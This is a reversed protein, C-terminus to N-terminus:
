FLSERVYIVDGPQVLDTLEPSSEAVKGDPGARHLRLRRQSGRATPGGGAALAQMVTMQREVRYPGPKQAEGYIYFVPARPVYLADGAALVLDDQAAAGSFLSPIDIVRRLPQGGRTGTVVLVDDGLPTVGGASALMESARVNATELPFRGPRAVQGLVAVQSGRVQVLNINVQPSKLFRGQRLADAIRREAEGLSLGGVQVSGVLPYSIAGAESVRAEVSLDPNQFVQVRIADGPGLRYEGAAFPLAPLACALLAIARLLIPVLNLVPSM